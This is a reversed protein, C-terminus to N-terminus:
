VYFLVTIYLYRIMSVSLKELTWRYCLVWTLGSLLTVCTNVAKPQVSNRHWLISSRALLATHPSLYAKLKAIPTKLLSGLWRYVQVSRWCLWSSPFISRLFWDEFDGFNGFKQPIHLEGGGGGGGKSWRTYAHYIYFLFLNSSFLIRKINRASSKSFFQYNWFWCVKWLKSCLIHGMYVSCNRYWDCHTGQLYIVITYGSRWCVSFKWFWIGICFRLIHFHVTILGECICSLELNSKQAESQSNTVSHRRQESNRLCIKSYKWLLRFM